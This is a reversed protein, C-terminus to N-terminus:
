KHLVKKKYLVKNTINRRMFPLFLCVRYMTTQWQMCIQDVICKLPAGAIYYYDEWKITSLRAPTAPTHQPM